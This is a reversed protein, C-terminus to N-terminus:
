NFGIRGNTEPNAVKFIVQFMTKEKAVVKYATIDKVLSHRALQQKHVM